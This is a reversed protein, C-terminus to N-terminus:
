PTHRAGGVLPVDLEVLWDHTVCEEVEDPSDILLWEHVVQNEDVFVVGGNQMDPSTIVKTLVRVAEILGFGGFAVACGIAGVEPLGFITLWCYAAIGGYRFYREQPSLWSRVGAQLASVRVFSGFLGAFVAASAIFTSPQAHAMAMAFAVSGMLFADAFHSFVCSAWRLEASRLGVVRAFAGDLVDLVGAIALTALALEPQGVTISVGSFVAFGLSFLILAARTLKQRIPDSWWPGPRDDDVRSLARAVVLDVPRSRRARLDRDNQDGTYIRHLVRRLGERSSRRVAEDDDLLWQQLDVVCEFAANTRAQVLAARRTSDVLRTGRQGVAFGLREGAILAGRHIAELLVEDTPEGPATDQDTM